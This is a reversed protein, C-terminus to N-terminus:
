DEVEYINEILGDKMEVAYYKIKFLNKALPYTLGAALREPARIEPHSLYFKENPVSVDVFEGLFSTLDNARPKLEGCLYKTCDARTLVSEFFAFHIVSEDIARTEETRSSVLKMENGDYAFECHAKCGACTPFAVTIKLRQGIEWSEAPNYFVRRGSESIVCLCNNGEVLLVSRGGIEGESLKAASFENPLTFTEGTRGEVILCPKGGNLVLSAQGGAFKARSVPVIGGDKPKYRNLSVIADGGTLYVDAFDPPNKFFASNIFFNLPQVNGDPVIECLLNSGEDMDFFREFSDIIGAYVGDIKLGATISSLFYIRM